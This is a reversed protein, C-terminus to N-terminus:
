VDDLALFLIWPCLIFANLRFGTFRSEECADDDDDVARAVVVADDARCRGDTAM